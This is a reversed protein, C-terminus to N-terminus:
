AAFDSGAPIYIRSILLRPAPAKERGRAEAKNREAVQRPGAIRRWMAGAVARVARGIAKYDADPLNAFSVRM